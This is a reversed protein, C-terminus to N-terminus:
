KTKKLSMVLVVIVALSLVCIAGAPFLKGTTMLRYTFLADVAFAIVLAAYAGEKKKKYMALASVIVGCGLLFGFVLSFLSQAMIFGMLGGFVLLIGYILVFTATSKKM